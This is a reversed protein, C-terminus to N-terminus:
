YGKSRAIDLSPRRPAPIDMFTAQKLESVPTQAVLITEGQDDTYHVEATAFDLFEVLIGVKGTQNVVWMGKRLRQNKM